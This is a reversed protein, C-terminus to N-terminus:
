YLHFTVLVNYQICFIFIFFLIILYIHKIISKNRCLSVGIHLVNSMFKIEVYLYALTISEVYVKYKNRCLTIIINYM